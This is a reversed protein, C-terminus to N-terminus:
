SKGVALPMLEGMEGRGLRKKTEHMQEDTTMVFPGGHVIPENQPTGSVYLFNAESTATTVW